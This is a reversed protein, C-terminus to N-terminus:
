LKLKPDLWDRLSDGFLNFATRPDTSALAANLQVRPDSDQLGKIIAAVTGAGSGPM